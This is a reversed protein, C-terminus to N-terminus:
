QQQQAETSTSSNESDRLCEENVLRGYQLVDLRAVFHAEVDRVMMTYPFGWTVLRLSGHEHTPWRTWSKTIIPTCIEFM